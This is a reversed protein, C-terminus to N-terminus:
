YLAAIDHLTIESNALYEMIADNDQDYGTSSKDYTSPMSAVTHLLTQEDIAYLDSAQIEAIIDQMTVSSKAPEPRLFTVLGFGLGILLVFSAAMAVQTRLSQWRAFIPHTVPTTIREAVHEPLTEFYHAPVTFPTPKYEGTLAFGKRVEFTEFYNEPTAFPFQKFENTLRFKKSVEFTEFYNEPVTFPMRKLDDNLTFKDM